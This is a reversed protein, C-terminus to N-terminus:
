YSIVTNQTNLNESYRKNRILDSNYHLCNSGIYKTGQHIFPIPTSYVLVQHCKQVQYIDSHLLHLLPKGLNRFAM